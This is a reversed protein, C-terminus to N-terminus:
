RPEVIWDQVALPTVGAMLTKLHEIESETIPTFNEGIELAMEFLKPDGPPVAATIPQSLTFRLVLDALEPDDVPDYWCRDYPRPQGKEIRGRAMGKLAKRGMGKGEAKDIVDEGWGVELYNVWNVPFLISDFDFQDMLALAVTDSHASFGIHRVLGKDRAEVFAELAGGPGTAQEFDEWSKMGHLQYLDFHDTCLLKLSQEM